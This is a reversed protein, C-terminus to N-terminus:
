YRIIGPELYFTLADSNADFETGASQHTIVISVKKPNTVPGSFTFTGTTLDADNLILQDTSGMAYVIYAKAPLRLKSLRVQLTYSESQAFLFDSLLLALCTIIHKKM